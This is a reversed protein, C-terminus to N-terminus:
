KKEKEAARHDESKNVCSNKDAHGILWGTWHDACGGDVGKPIDGYAFGCGGSSGRM